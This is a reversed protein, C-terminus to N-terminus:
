QQVINKTLLQVQDRLWKIQEAQQDLMAKQNNIVGMLVDPSSNINVTSNSIHHVNTNELKKDDYEENSLFFDEIPVEFYESLRELYRSDIYTRGKFYSTSIHSSQGFVFIPLACTQLESTHKGIEMEGVTKKQEKLLRNVLDGNFM